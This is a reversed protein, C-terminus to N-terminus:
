AGPTVISYLYNLLSFNATFPRMDNWYGVGRFGYERVLSLKSLASRADEFWVEHVSGDEATYFFYPTQATEDFHIEAGVEAALLAAAENGILQARTQGAHFPLQWDYAYNPFGMFIKEAPIESIAYDLVRRVSGIPAVAMPPGYTYGWEYSHCGNACVDFPKFILASDPFLIQM